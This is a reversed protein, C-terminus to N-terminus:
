PQQNTTTPPPPSAAHRPPPPPRFRPTIRWDAVDRCGNAASRPAALPGTQRRAARALPVNLSDAQSVRRRVTAAPPTLAMLLLGSPLPFCAQLPDVHIGASLRPNRCPRGNRLVLCPAPTSFRLVPRRRQGPCHAGSRGPM